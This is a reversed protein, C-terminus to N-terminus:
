EPAENFRHLLQTLDRVEEPSWSTMRERYDNASRARMEDIAATGETSLVLIAVRKDEPSISVEVYGLERLTTVQRSVTSKDMDLAQCIETSTIPARRGIIQLVMLGSGRLEPHVAQANKAWRTRIFSMLSGFEASLERVESVTVMEHVAPKESTNRQQSM